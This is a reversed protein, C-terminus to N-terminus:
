RKMTSQRRSTGRKASRTTTPGSRNRSAKLLPHNAGYRKAIARRVTAYSGRTDPRASYSLAARARKVTNIPYLRRSPIAFASKPLARRSSAKIAM